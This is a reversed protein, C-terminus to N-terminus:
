GVGGRARLVQSADRLKKSLVRLFAEYIQPEARGVRAIAAGSLTLVRCPTLARATASRPMGEFLAMEGFCMSPGLRDLTVTQGNVEAEIGVQGSLVVFLRDGVDGERFLEADRPFTQVMAVEAIERLQDLAVAGFLPVARLHVLKEITLMTDKTPSLALSALEPLSPSPAVGSSSAEGRLILEARARLDPPAANALVACVVDDIPGRASAGAALNAVASSTHRPALARLAELAEARASMALVEAALAEATAPEAALLPTRRVLLAEAHTLLETALQKVVPDAAPEVGALDARAAAVRLDTSAAWVFPRRLATMLADWQPGGRAPLHPLALEAVDQADLRDLLAHAVATAAADAEFPDALEAIAHPAGVADGSALRMISRRVRAPVDILAVRPLEALTRGHAEWAELLAASKEPDLLLAEVVSADTSRDAAALELDLADSRLGEPRGEFARGALARLRVLLRAREPSGRAELQDLASSDGGPWRRVLADLADDYEVARAAVAAIADAGQLELLGEAASARYEPVDLMSLLVSAVEDGRTRQDRARFVHENLVDDLSPRVARALYSEVWTLGLHWYDAPNSTYRTDVHQRALERAAGADGVASAAGATLQLLEDLPISRRAALRELRELEARDLRATAVLVDGIEPVFAAGPSGGFSEALRAISRACAARLPELTARRSPMAGVMAAAMRDCVQEEIFHSASAVGRTMRLHHSAEHCMIFPLAVEYFLAADDVSTCGMMRCYFLWRARDVPGEVVPPCFGIVRDEHVYGPCPHPDAAVRLDPSLTVEYPALVAALEALIATAEGIWDERTLM